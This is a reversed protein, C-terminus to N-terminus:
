PHCLPFAISPARAICSPCVVSLTTNNLIEAIGGVQASLTDSMHQSLMRELSENRGLIGELRQREGQLERRICPDTHVM